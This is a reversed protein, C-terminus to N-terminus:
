TVDQNVIVKPHVEICNPFHSLLVDGHQFVVALDNELRQTM